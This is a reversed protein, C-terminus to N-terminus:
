RTDFEGGRGEGRGIGLGQQCRSLLDSLNESETNMLLYVARPKEVGPHSSM